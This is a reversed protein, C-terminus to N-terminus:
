RILNIGKILSNKDIQGPYVLVINGDKDIFVTTPISSVGYIAAAVQQNDFYIPLNFGHDKIFDQGKEMTERRGDVLDVMMFAVDNKEDAYVEEFHPMEERCPPCWSAWFNLVVPKGINDSLKVENGTNDLVIFDPAKNEAGEQSSTNDPPQMDDNRNYNSSLYDYAFYIIILFIIFVIIAAITRKKDNM